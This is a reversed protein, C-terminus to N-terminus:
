GPAWLSGNVGILNMTTLLAYDTFSYGYAQPDGSWQTGSSAPYAAPYAPEIGIAMGAASDAGSIFVDMFSAGVGGSPFNAIAAMDVNEVVSGIFDKEASTEGGLYRGASAIGKHLSLQHATWMARQAADSGTSKAAYDLWAQVAADRSTTVGRELLGGATRLDLLMSGNVTRWWRSGGGREAIRGSRIEWATFVILGEIEARGGTVARAPDGSGRFNELISKREDPSLAQAEEAARKRQVYPDTKQYGCECDRLLGTPDKATVPSGAAYGYSDLTGPHSM